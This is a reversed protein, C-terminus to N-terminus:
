LPGKISDARFTVPLAGIRDISVKLECDRNIEILETPSGPIVYDGKKLMEGRGTLYKVLWRLSHLPGGLIERAAASAVQKGNIFVCFTEDNFVLDKPSVRMDGVILGAHIGGSCILEQLSPKGCWFKFHHIEVGPSVYEISDLLDQDSLDDGALDCSMRFVMEPEIACNAYNAWNLEVGEQQVHPHFLRACIPENLEFQTQIAASTCGVKYGVVKEGSQVRREAVLRQVEYADEQSLKSVDREEQPIWQRGYFINYFQEAFQHLKDPM